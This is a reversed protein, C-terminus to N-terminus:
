NLSRTVNGSLLEAIPTKKLKSYYVQSVGKRLARAIRGRRTYAAPRLKKEIKKHTMKGRQIVSIKSPM